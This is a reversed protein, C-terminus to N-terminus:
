KKVVVYRGVYKEVERHLAEPYMQAAIPCRQGLIEFAVYGDVLGAELVEVLHRVLPPAAKRVDADSVPNKGAAAAEELAARTRNLNGEVYQAVCAREEKFSAEVEEANGLVEKRAAPENRLVAKCIAYSIWEVDDGGYITIGKGDPKGLYGRPPDFRHRALPRLGFAEPQADLVKYLTEYVPNYSFAAVLAARAEDARDLRILANASFFYASPNAADIALAKRYEALAAAYDRDGFFYVDGYLLHAIADNPDLEIMKRYRVAAEAYQKRDYLEEAEDRLKASDPHLKPIGLTWRDGSRIRAVQGVRTKCTYEDIPNSAPKADVSYVNKSDALQQLYWAPSKSEAALPVAAFVLLAATSWRM